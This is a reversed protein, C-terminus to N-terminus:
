SKTDECAHTADPKSTDETNRLSKKYEAVKKGLEIEHRIDDGIAKFTSLIEKGLLKLQKGTNGFM